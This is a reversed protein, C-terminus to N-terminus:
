LYWQYERPGIHREFAEQEARKTACYLEVYDAGLYDRLVASGQMRALAVEWRRPIGPDAERGANGVAAPGPDIRQEIGHAAGALVAALVLYPNANAAAIRHEFRRAAPAGAPIRVAVSRNDTGWSRGVPVYLDPRLRRFANVDPALIALAEPMTELLGGIAHALPPAGRPAADAFVNGGDGDLLSVHLHMGSGATDHFPKAMFTARLGHRRAIRTVAHRLLAAHDAAVLAEGVHRLNVEYQGPAFESSVVSAPIAQARCEADLAHFFKGFGDIEDLGFVSVQTERRGDLTAGARLPVGSAPIEPDLLYFELEFAVVPHLGRAALRAVVEGAVVRPDVRAAGGAPAPMSMLVRAGPVTDWGVRSLTGPVPLAVGDPDGDSFGRGCPDLCDGTVDLFYASYPVALGTGYLREADEIPYRKGRMRGCLDVIMADVYRLGPEAALLAALEKSPSGDIPM